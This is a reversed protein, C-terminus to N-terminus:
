TIRMRGDVWWAVVAGLFYALVDGWQFTTGLFLRGFWHHELGLHHALRLWQGCEVACAFVFSGTAAQWPRVDSVGRVLFHLLVVVLLDGGFPRILRDHVFAAILVELALIVGAISLAQLNLRLM